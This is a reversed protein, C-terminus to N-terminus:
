DSLYTWTRLKSSGYRKWYTNLRKEFKDHEEQLIESLRKRDHETLEMKPTDDYWKRPAEVHYVQTNCIRSVDYITPDSLAEEFHPFREDLNAQIFNDKERYSEVADSAQQHEEETSVGSYGYGHCFETMIGPKSFAVLYGKDTKYANSLYKMHYEASSRGFAKEYEDIIAQMDQSIKKM